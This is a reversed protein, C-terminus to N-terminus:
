LGHDAERIEVEVNENNAGEADIAKRAHHLWEDFWVMSDASGEIRIAKADIAGVIDKLIQIETM